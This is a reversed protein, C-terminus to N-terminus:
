RAEWNLAYVEQTGVDRLVLFANDPTLGSWCREPGTTRRFETLSGLKEERRDRIRMRMAGIDPGWREYYAYQGDSSWNAFHLIGSALQEWRGAGADFLMLQAFDFRLGLLYRGDPSWKADWVGESGPIPSVRKSGLELIYLMNPGKAGPDFFPSGGFVIQRGDPSWAPSAENDPGSILQEPSGGQRSVVYLKWPGGPRRGQFVIREGDPSWSPGTAEMPAFTLQQRDTDDPRSRWLVAEPYSIYALWDGRRSYTLQVMSRQSAGLTLPTWEGSVPERRMVEGRIQDGIALITRGDAGPWPSRFQLAGTTLQVPRQPRRSWWGREGDALAWLNTTGRKTSQFVFYAGDPTWRGCCEAAPTNWGPLLPRLGAGDVGIEWISSQPGEFVTFRLRTGDPAWAISGMSGTTRTTLKRKGNGDAGSVYLDSKSVYAVRAGDYSPHVDHARMELPQPRGPDTPVLWYAFPAPGEYDGVFLQSGAPSIDDLGPNAFPVPIPATAGDSFSAKVIATRNNVREAIYLSSRDAVLAFKQQEDSTLKVFGTVRPQPVDSRMWAAAVAAALVVGVGACAASALRHRGIWSRERGDRGASGVARLADALADASQFRLARDKELCRTVIARLSPPVHEPLAPAPDHLIAHLTEAITPRHFVRTATLMEHLVLGFSFVDARADVDKGRIQEPAMYQATGVISGVASPSSAPVMRKAANTVLALGFDLLKVGSATIMVNQPKLDRHVIGVDHAASLADAIQLAYQLSVDVALPGRSLLGALTEGSVLEMVLFQIEREGVRASAIDYLTCVHPHLLRSIARAEHGLRLFADDAFDTAGTLAKLAVDRDLRTDRAHYVQGMGGAGICAVIEFPGLRTGPALLTAAPVNDDAWTGDLSPELFGSDEDHAELLSEVEARLEADDGCVHDLYSRRDDGARALADPFVVELRAWRDRDLV